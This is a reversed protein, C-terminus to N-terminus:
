SNNCFAVILPLIASMKGKQKELDEFGFMNVVLPPPPVNFACQM